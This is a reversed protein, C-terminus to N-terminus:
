RSPDITDQELLSATTAMIALVTKILRPFGMGRAESLNGAADSPLAPVHVFLYPFDRPSQAELYGLFGYILSNCVYTGASFSYTVPGIAAPLLRKL